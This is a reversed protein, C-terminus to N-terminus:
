WPRIMRVFIVHLMVSFICLGIDDSSLLNDGIVEANQSENM